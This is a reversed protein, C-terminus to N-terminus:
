RDINIKDVGCGHYSLPCSEVWSITSLINNTSEFYSIIHSFCCKEIAGPLSIAIIRRQKQQPILEKNNKKNNDNKWSDCYRWNERKRERSTAIAILKEKCKAIM